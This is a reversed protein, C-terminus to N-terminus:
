NQMRLLLHRRRTDDGGGGGASYYVLCHFEYGADTGTKTGFPDVISTTGQRYTVGPGGSSTVANVCLNTSTNIMGIYYETTASLSGNVLFALNYTTMTNSTITLTATSDVLAAPESASSTYILGQIVDNTGGNRVRIHVSDANGGTGDTTYPMTQTVGTTGWNAESSTTENGITAGHEIDGAPWDRVVAWPFGEALYKTPGDRIIRQYLRDSNDGSRYDTRTLFFQVVDDKTLPVVGDLDRSTNLDFIGTSDRWVLGLSDVDLEILNVVYADAPSGNAQWWNEFTARFSDHFVYHIKLQDPENIIEVDVGPYCDTITIVNGSTAKNTFNPDALKIRNHTSRRYAFLGRIRQKIIFDGWKMRTREGDSQVKHNGSDSVMNQGVQRFDANIKRWTAGDLYNWSPGGSVTRTRDIAANFDSIRGSPVWDALATSSLVSILLALLLQRM